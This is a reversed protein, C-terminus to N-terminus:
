STRMTKSDSRYTEAGVCTKLLVRRALAEKALETGALGISLFIALAMSGILAVYIFAVLEGAIGIHYLAMSAAVLIVMGRVAPIALKHLLPHNRAETRKELVRKTLNAVCMGATFILFGGLLRPLYSLLPSLLRSAVSLGLVELAAIAAGLIIMWIMLNAIMMRANLDPQLDRLLGSIGAESYVTELGYKKQIVFSSRKVARALVIGATFVLMAALMRPM